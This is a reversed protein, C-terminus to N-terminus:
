YENKVGMAEEYDKDLQVPDDEFASLEGNEDHKFYVNKAHPEIPALQSHVAVTSVGLKRQNDPKFGVTIVIKRKATPNTNPDEINSMVKKLELDFMDLALGGQITSLDIKQCM